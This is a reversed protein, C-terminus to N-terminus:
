FVEIREGQRAPPDRLPRGATGFKRVFEDVCQPCLAESKADHEQLNRPYARPCTKSTCRPIGFLLGTSSLAQNLARKLVLERRPSNFRCYSMVAVGKDASGFLFNMHESYMDEGTVALLMDARGGGARELLAPNADGELAISGFEEIIRRCKAEEREIVTVEHGKALLDKVLYYGVKGGGIIIAYM